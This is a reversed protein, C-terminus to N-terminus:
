GEKKYKEKLAKLDFYQPFAQKFHVTFFCYLDEYSSRIEDEFKTIEVVPYWCKSQYEFMLNLFKGITLNDTTKIGIHNFVSRNFKSFSKKVSVKGRLNLYRLYEKVSISLFLHVNNNQYICERLMNRTHGLMTLRLGARRHVPDALYPEYDFMLETMGLMEGFTVQHARFENMGSDRMFDALLKMLIESSVCRFEILPVDLLKGVIWDISSQDSIYGKRSAETAKKLTTKM